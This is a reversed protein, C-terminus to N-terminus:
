LLYNDFLNFVFFSSFFLVSLFFFISTNISMEKKIQVSSSIPLQLQLKKIVDLTILRFIPLVTRNKKKKKITQYYAAQVLVLNLQIM